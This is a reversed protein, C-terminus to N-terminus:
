PFNLANSIIHLYLYVNRSFFLQSDWREEWVKTVVTGSQLRM